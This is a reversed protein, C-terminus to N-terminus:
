GAVEVGGTRESPRWRLRSGRVATLVSEVVVLYMLQRYVLQQLPMAVLPRPSEGDLRFAYWGLGLQLGTFGLWYGAVWYAGLFFFGYISFV